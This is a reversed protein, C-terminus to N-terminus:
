SVMDLPIIDNVIRGKSNILMVRNTPSPCSCPEQSKKPTADVPPLTINAAPAADEQGKPKRAM